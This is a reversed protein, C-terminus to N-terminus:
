SPNASNPNASNPNASNPSGPTATSAAGGKRTANSLIFRTSADSTAGVTGSTGTAKEDARQVCGTVTIKDTSSSSNTQSASPGTNQAAVMAAGCVLIVIAGCVKKKM